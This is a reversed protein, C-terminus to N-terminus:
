TKIITPYNAKTMVEAHMQELRAAKTVDRKNQLYAMFSLVIPTLATALAAIGDFLTNLTNM